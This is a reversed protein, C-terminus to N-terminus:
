CQVCSSSWSSSSRLRLGSLCVSSLMIDGAATAPATAAATAAAGCRLQLLMGQQVPAVAKSRNQSLSSVATGASAAQGAVAPRSM